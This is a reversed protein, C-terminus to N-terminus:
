NAPNTPVSAPPATVTWSDAIEGNKRQSTEDKPLWARVYQVSVNTPSVTVRVHGSSSVITGSAYHYDKALTAGSNNNIPSPQPVEQYVIGDLDQKVYLHDHGHFVATVHNKVLLQHIPMSWGPRQAAFGASGDANLGGWEYFPAAEVGGRMQGDLGGVLSHLFIFKYKAKSGALTQELWHYQQDGLTIDWGKNTKVKTYWYPDLAVFLADGWNFAYWGARQGVYPESTTNGSYFSDPTPNVFFKQRALSTWNALNQASGNNLWGAEGEHNGNVLFLPVSHAAAGFNGREFWYRWTVQAQTTAMPVTPSLPAYHKECMFTDGLDIHFDPADALVNALTQRYLSVGSNEDMHSDAQLTFTFTSGAPRATHFGHEDTPVATPSDDSQLFLRYFYRTDPKLNALAITIPADAALVVPTTQQDYQSPATGYSLYVTGRQDPSFVSVKIANSEPAGLIINGHFAGVKAASGLCAGKCFLQNGDDLSSFRAWNGAVAYWLGGQFTALGYSQLDPYVRYQATDTGVTLLQTATSPYFYQPYQQEIQSLLANAESASPALCPATTCSAANVTTGFVVLLAGFMAQWVFHIRSM